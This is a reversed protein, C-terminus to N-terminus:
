YQKTVVFYSTIINIYMVTRLFLKKLLEVTKILFTQLAQSEVFAGLLILTVDSFLLLM